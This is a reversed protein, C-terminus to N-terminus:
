RTPQASSARKIEVATEKPVVQGTAIEVFQGTKKDLGFGAKIVYRDHIHRPRTKVEGTVGDLYYETEYKEATVRRRPPILNGQLDYSKDEGAVYVSLAQERPVAEGTKANVFRGTKEDLKYGSRIKHRNSITRQATKVEGTSPDLYHITEYPGTGAPTVAHVVNGQLDYFKGEGPV